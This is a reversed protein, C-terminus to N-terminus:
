RATSCSACEEALRHSRITVRDTRHKISKLAEIGPAGWFFFTGIIARLYEAFICSFSGGPHGNGDQSLTPWNVEFLYPQGPSAVPQRWIFILGMIQIRFRAIGAPSLLSRNPDEQACQWMCPTGSHVPTDEKSSTSSPSAYSSKYIALKRASM